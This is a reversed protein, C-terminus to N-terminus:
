KLSPDIMGNYDVFGSGDTDMSSIIDALEQEDPRGKLGDAIEELSLIGDGNKDLSMFLRKMPEMEKESLQTALYTLVVKKIRQASRFVKLQRTVIAPMEVKEPKDAMRVIWPHALVQQSSLRKGAPCLMKTILDKCESSIKAWVPM